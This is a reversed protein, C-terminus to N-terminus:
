SKRWSTISVGLREEISVLEGAGLIKGNVVLQVEEPIEGIEIVSGERLAELDGLSLEVESLVVNIRVPLSELKVESAPETVAQQSQNTDEAM